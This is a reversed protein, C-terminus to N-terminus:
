DQIEGDEARERGILVFKQEGKHLTISIGLVRCVKMVSQFNPMKKSVLVGRWFSQSQAASLSFEKMSQGQERRFGDLWEVMSRLNEKDPSM